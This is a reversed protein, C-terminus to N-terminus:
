NNEEIDVYLENDRIIGELIRFNTTKLKLFKPTNSERDVRVVIGEHIQTPFQEDPLESLKEFHGGLVEQEDRINYEGNKLTWPKYVAVEIEKVHNVGLEECRRKVQPWTLDIQVGDPNTNTIRYVFIKYEGPQCGYTFNTIEGYKKIFEKYSDKDLYKKLKDNSQSPMIPSNDKEYGAIEYYITEGKHLKGYFNDKASKTWIDTEYFSAQKKTLKVGDIYKVVRRSGVVFRYDYNSINFLKNLIKRFWSENEVPLNGCRCSTNHILIGNAYFNNTYSVTLDYRDYKKSLKKISKIKM